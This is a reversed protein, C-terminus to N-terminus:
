QKKRKEKFQDEALRLSKLGVLFSKFQLSFKGIGSTIHLFVSEAV